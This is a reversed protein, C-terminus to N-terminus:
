YLPPPPNVAQVITLPNTRQRVSYFVALVDRRAHTILQPCRAGNEGEVTISVGERRGDKASPLQREAVACNVEGKGHRLRVGGVM